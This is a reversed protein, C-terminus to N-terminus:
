SRPPPGPPPGGGHHPRNHRQMQLTKFKARQDDNLVKEIEANTANIEVDVQPRVSSWITDIRQRHRELIGEVAKRQQPDFHLDRDLRDALRKTMSQGAVRAPLYQRTRILYVRDGALGAVIGAAFAALVVVV